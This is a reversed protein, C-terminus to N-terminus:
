KITHGPVIKGDKYVPPQYAEGPKGGSTTEFALLTGLMLAVGGAFLWVLPADSLIPTEDGASRRRVFVYTVYILSPTLFLLLNEIVFRIM